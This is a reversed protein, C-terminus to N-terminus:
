SQTNYHIPDYVKMKKNEEFTSEIEVIKTYRKGDEIVEVFRTVMKPPPLQFLFRIGIDADTKNPDLVWQMGWELKCGSCVFKGFRSNEKTFSIVGDKHKAHYIKFIDSPITHNKLDIKTASRTNPYWKKLNKNM